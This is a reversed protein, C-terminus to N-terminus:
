CLLLFIDTWVQDRVIKRSIWLIKRTRWSEDIYSPMTPKLNKLTWWVIKGKFALFSKSPPLALNEQRVPVMCIGQVMLLIKIGGFIWIKHQFEMAFVLTVSAFHITKRDANRRNCKNKCYIESMLYSDKVPILIKYKWITSQKFTNSIHYIQVPGDSKERYIKVFEFFARFKM